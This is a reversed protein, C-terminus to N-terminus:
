RRCLQYMLTYCLMVCAFAPPNALTAQYILVYYERAVNELGLGADASVDLYGKPRPIRARGSSIDILYFRCENQSAATCM